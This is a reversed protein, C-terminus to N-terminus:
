NSIKKIKPFLTFNSYRLFFIIFERKNFEGNKILIEQKQKGLKILYGTERYGNKIYFNKRRIRENMNESEVNCREITSIIKNNPYLSQIKNLICSGYGRSRINEDVAFFMVFTIKRMTAMYVFGCLVNEEYFSIFHTSKLYSMFLMMLFPMRDEKSFSTEYIEKVKNRNGSKLTVKEMGLEM